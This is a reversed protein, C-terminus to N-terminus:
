KKIKSLILVLPSAIFVTSYTGSIFGVLLCFAFGNLVEGGFLFLSVVVFLTALTTLLTRSMTQNVSLNIVERISLKRSTRLIERMRDYIVITDNISYGAITLLGTVILLDIVRGTLACLGLAVLIDHLLAIIGAAAFDFHKFRFGVYVLIGLLSFIIAKLAKQQLIKGAIPGVQEVKVLEFPNDTFDQKFKDSVKQLSDEKTRIVIQQPNSSFQQIVADSLNLERLASRVADVSPASKFRYEQLQGGSFDVGYARGGKIFYSFLGLGIVLFSIVFFVYRFKIYDFKPQKILRLMPLFTLLKFKILLEFIARTVVIATFLSALLGISLTVAFGRIPGTGFQFLLFAAILTTVNSDVIASLARHYGSAIAVPLAKGLALEEKIRENILVNADVAMGLTLAIGAIGPLTLTSHLLSLGALIILLNLILAINAIFGAIMYYVVMFLFVLLSGVVTSRIGAAISDRGLLPGITREEEIYIPAPLAGVRLVIALDGAEQNTFRGTIVAEGSPIPENIRPASQVKGDLVIALRRGVNNTTLDAFKKAGQTSFNLAVLPENFRSQDFSVTANVLADGTLVAEKELLIQEDELTKLECNEPVQGALAQQLLNPDNNVLKFELLATKGILEIARGRETIGPLQVVIENEGQRQISPEKVGFEDIRNRIVELAREAADKKADDSLKSTDVRLLLHMGGQLDLGLNIKQNLPFALFCAALVIGAIILLKMNLNKYM